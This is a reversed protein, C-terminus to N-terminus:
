KMAVTRRDCLLYAVIGCENKRLIGEGESSNLKFCCCSVNPEEMVKLVCVEGTKRLYIDQCKASTMVNM